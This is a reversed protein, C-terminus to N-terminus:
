VQIGNFSSKYKYYYNLSDWSKRIWVAMKTIEKTAKDKLSTTAQHSSLLTLNKTPQNFPIQSLWFYEM